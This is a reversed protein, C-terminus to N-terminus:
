PDSPPTRDAVFSLLLKITDDIMMESAFILAIGSVGTPVAFGPLLVPVYVADGWRTANLNACEGVLWDGHATGPGVLVLVIRFTEGWIQLRNSLSQGLSSAVFEASSASVGNRALSESLLRTTEEDGQGYLVCSSLPM